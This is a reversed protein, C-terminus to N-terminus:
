AMATFDAEDKKGAEVMSPRATVRKFWAVVKPDQPLVDPMWLYPAAMLLDVVSFGDPLFFDRGDALTSAMRAALEKPGRFTRQLLPDNLGAHNCVLVPEVVGAYYALWTLFPGRQDSGAPRIAPAAPFLDSLYTLIAARETVITGDHDLAPVKGDPHPNKPDAGGSGDLRPVSTLHIKVQDAIGMEDLVAIMITSRSFPSHYLTLM